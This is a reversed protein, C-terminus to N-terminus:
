NKCEFLHSFPQSRQILFGEVNRADQVQVSDIDHGSGWSARSSGSDDLCTDSLPLFVSGWGQSNSSQSKSHAYRWNHDNMILLRGTAMAVVMCYALHHIQCGFGCGKNLQCVLKKVSSCSEKPPNQLSKIKNQVFDAMQQLEDRRWHHDRKEIM